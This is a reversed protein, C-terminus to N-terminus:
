SRRVMHSNLLSPFPRREEKNLFVCLFVCARVMGIEARDTTLKMDNNTKSKYGM